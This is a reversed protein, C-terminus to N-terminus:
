RGKGTAAPKKAPTAPKKAPTNTKPKDAPTNTQSGGGRSIYKDLLPGTSLAYADNPDVALISDVVVRAQRYDKQKTAYYYVQYSYSRKIQSKYRATDQKWFAIQENIAPIATGQSTDPDNLIAARARLIYGQPQTPYQQIYAQALTDAKYYRKANTAAIIYNYFNLATTDPRMAMAKELARFQATWNQQKGFIDAVTRLTAIRTTTNTDLSTAKDLADVLKNSDEPFKSYLSAAMLYDDSGVRIPNEKQLYREIYNRAQLSDGQREYIVAYLKNLKPFTESSCNAEMEKAKALAADRQGAQLQYDAYFFDTECDKDALAIYQDLYVKAKNVDRRSYYDYLALFGPAYKPDLTTSQELYPIFVSPNNQSQFIRGTRLKAYAYNPDIALAQDYATKAQGGYDPGRKLQSIGILTPIEPNKPDLKAAINLKDIGYVPDGTKSDGDANARGVATLIKVDGGKKTNTAALAADFHARADANKGELAEVHGMGVMILPNQNTATMAKAYVSRAGALDDQNIYVQGLWYNADPDAPNAAVAKQLIDKASKYKQYYISKVGEAVSQAYSLGVVASSVIMLFIKKM